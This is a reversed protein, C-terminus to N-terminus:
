DKHYDDEENDVLGLVKKLNIQYKKKMFEMYDKMAKDESNAHTKFLTRGYDKMTLSISPMNRENLLKKWRKMKM